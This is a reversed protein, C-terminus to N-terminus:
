GRYRSLSRRWRARGTAASGAPRWCSRCRGGAAPWIRCGAGTGIMRGPPFWGAAGAPWRPRGPGPRFQVPDGLDEVHDIVLGALHPFLLVLLGTEGVTLKYLM